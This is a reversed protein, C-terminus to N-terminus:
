KTTTVTIKCEPKQHLRHCSFTSNTEHVNPRKRPNGRERGPQATEGGKQDPLPLPPSPPRARSNSPRWEEKQNPPGGKGEQNRDEGRGKKTSPDGEGKRPQPRGEGEQKGERNTPTGRTTKPTEGVKNTPTHKPEHLNAPRGEAKKTPRDGEGRGQQNPPRGKGKQNSPRGEGKKIQHGGKGKKTPLYRRRRKPVVKSCFCTAHTTRGMAYSFVRAHNSLCVSSPTETATSTCFFLTALASSSRM